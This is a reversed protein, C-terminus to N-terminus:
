PSEHRCMAACPPVNFIMLSGLVSHKATAVSEGPGFSSKAHSHRRGKHGPAWLVEPVVVEHTGGHEPTMGVAHEVRTPLAVGDQSIM